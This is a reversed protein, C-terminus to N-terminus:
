LGGTPFNRAGDRNTFGRDCACNEWPLGRVGGFYVSTVDRVPTAQSSQLGGVKRPGM